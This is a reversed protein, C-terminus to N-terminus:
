FVFLAELIRGRPGSKLNLSRGGPRKAGSHELDCLHDEGARSLVAMVAAKEFTEVGVGGEEEFLEDVICDIDLDDLIGATRLRLLLNQVELPLLAREETGFARRSRVGGRARPAGTLRSLSELRCFVAEPHGTDLRSSM